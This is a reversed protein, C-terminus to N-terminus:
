CQMLASTSTYCKAGFLTTSLTCLDRKLKLKQFIIQDSKMNKQRHYPDEAMFNRGHSLSTPAPTGESATLHLCLTEYEDLLVLLHFSHNCSQFVFCAAGTFGGHAHRAALVYVCWAKSKRLTALWYWHVQLWLLRICQSEQSLCQMTCGMPPM